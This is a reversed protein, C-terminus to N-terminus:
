KNVDLRPLGAQELLSARQQKLAENDPQNSILEALVSLADYWYGEEAYIFPKELSDASRLRSSIDSSARSREIMGSAVIDSSRQAPNPILAVSWQYQVGPKLKIGYDALHLQQIGKKDGANLSLELIPEIEQDNVLSFEFRTPTPNSLYWSLTPYEQSTLGVHDPALIYLRPLNNKAGRTGGGVRASPAGRKPPRYVPMAVKVASAKHVDKSTVTKGQKRSQSNTEQKEAAYVPVSFFCLLGAVLSINFFTITKM